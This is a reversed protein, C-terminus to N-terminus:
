LYFSKLWLSWPHRGDSTCPELHPVDLFVAAWGLPIFAQVTSLCCGAHPGQGWILQILLALGRGGRGRLTIPAPNPCRAEHLCSPQEARCCRGHLPLWFCNLCIRCKASWSKNFLYPTPNVYQCICTRKKSQKKKKKKILIFLSYFPFEFDHHGVKLNGYFMFAAWISYVSVSM